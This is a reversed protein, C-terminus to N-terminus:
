PKYDHGMLPPLSHWAGKANVVAWIVEFEGPPVAFALSPPLLHLVALSPSLLGSFTLSPSRICSLLKSFSAGRKSTFQNHECFNM